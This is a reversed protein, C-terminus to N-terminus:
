YYQLNSSIVQFFVGIIEKLEKFQNKIEFYINKIKNQTSKEHLLSWYDPRFKSIQAISAYINILLQDYSIKCSNKLVDESDDYSLSKIPNSQCSRNENLLM